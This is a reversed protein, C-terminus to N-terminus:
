QDNTLPEERRFLGYSSKVWREMAAVLVGIRRVRRSGSRLLGPRDVPARNMRLDDLSPREGTLRFGFDRAHRKLQMAPFEARKSGNAGSRM